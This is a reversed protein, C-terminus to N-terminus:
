AGNWRDVHGALKSIADLYPAFLARARESTLPANAGLAVIETLVRDTVGIKSEVYAAAAGAHPAAPGDLRAVHTLLAALPAASRAILDALADSRGRTELFGERLHLLHSRVQIECARRLDAPDVALGTFPDAGSVIAHEALIAGFEFPFADLSREFEREDLLLPTALGAGQWAAVRAACARLDDATLHQVVALTPALAAAGEAPAYAVVSKLRDRFLERLDRDLNSVANSITVM